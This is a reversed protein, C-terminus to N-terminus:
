AELIVRYTGDITGQETMDNTTYVGVVQPRCTYRTAEFWVNAVPDIFLSTAPGTAFEQWNCHPRRAWNVTQVPAANPGRGGGAGSGIITQYTTKELEMRLRHRNALSTISAVNASDTVVRHLVIDDYSTDFVINWENLSGPNYDGDATDRLAFGGLPTWRLHYTKNPATAFTREALEWDSTSYRFIGRHVFNQDAALVVEGTGASLTMRGDATLVEPFIPLNALAAAQTVYAGGLGGGPGQEIAIQIAQWLQTLDSATPQLGAQEIVHVIEEMQHTWHRYSPISGEQGTAPNGDQWPLNSDPEGTSPNFPGLRRM